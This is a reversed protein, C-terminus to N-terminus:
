SYLKCEIKKDSYVTNDFDKKISDIIFTKMHENEESLLENKRDSVYSM